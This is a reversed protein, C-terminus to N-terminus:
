LKAGPGFKPTWKLAGVGQGQEGLVLPAPVGLREVLRRDGGKAFGALSMAIRRCLDQGVVAIEDIEAM